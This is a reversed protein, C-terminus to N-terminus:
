NLVINIHARIQPNFLCVFLDLRINYYTSPNDSKQKNLYINVQFQYKNEKEKKKLFLISIDFSKTCARLLLVVVVVVFIITFGNMKKKQLFANNKITIPLIYAINRLKFFHFAVLIENNKNPCLYFHV